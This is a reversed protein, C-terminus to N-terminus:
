YNRLKPIIVILLIIGIIMNINNYYQNNYLVKMDNIRINSGNELSSIDNMKNDELLINKKISEDKISDILSKNEINTNNICEIINITLEKLENYKNKINTTYYKYNNYETDTKEILLKTITKKLEDILITLSNYINIIDENYKIPEKCYYEEIINM